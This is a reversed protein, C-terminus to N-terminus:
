RARPSWANRIKEQIRILDWWAPHRGHDNLGHAIWIHSVSLSFPAGMKKHTLRQTGRRDDLVIEMKGCVLSLSIAISAEPQITPPGDGPILKGPLLRARLLQVASCRSLKLPAFGVQLCSPNQDVSFIYGRGIGSPTTCLVDVSFSLEGPTFDGESFSPM